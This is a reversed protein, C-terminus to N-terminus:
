VIVGNREPLLKLGADTWSGARGAAPRLVPNWIMEQTVTVAIEGIVGAEDPVAIIPASPVIPKISETVAGEGAQEHCTESGSM